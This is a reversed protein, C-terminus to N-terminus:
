PEDYDEFEHNAKTHAGHHIPDDYDGYENASINNNAPNEEPLEDYDEELIRLESASARLQSEIRLLDEKSKNIKQKPPLNPRPRKPPMSPPPQTPFECDVDAFLCM